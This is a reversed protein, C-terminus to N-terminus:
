KSPVYSDLNKGKSDVFQIVTHIGEVVTIKGDGVKFTVDNSSPTGVLMPKEDSLIMIKDLGQEYGYIKDNGDNSGFVFVDNDAGGYLEDNGAGGWLTDNGEGGYISDNGKGGYISDNGGGSRILDAGAGGDITDDENTGIIKNARKNGVIKLSYDVKSANISVLIDEYQSYESATFEDATYKATLTASTGGSNYKVGGSSSKKYTHKGDSDFYTVTKDKGGTVTIKGKGVMLVLDNGSTSTAATGSAISIKDENSYDTVINAGTSKFYFTDAGNGGTVTGTGFIKITDDGKGGNVSVKKGRAIITDSDSSGTITSSKYDSAFDYAYGGGITVKSKLSSAAPKITNGSVKLGDASTAGKISALTKATTAKSYSISKGNSALKYGATKYSSKYTATSNKLTWAAKKNKPTTVDDDLALTYGDGSITVKKKDLSSKSVTVVKDNLSLGDVSKVGKVTVLTKNSTGYTATTGSLTWSNEEPEEIIATKRFDVNTYRLIAAGSLTIKGDDVSVIVDDGITRKYYSEKYYAILTDDMDFGEIFDNGDGSNYVLWVYKSEHDYYNDLQISDNGTGGIITNGGTYYSHYITDDGAGGKVTVNYGYIEIFDNDGTGNVITNDMGNYIEAM